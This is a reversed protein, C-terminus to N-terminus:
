RMLMPLFVTGVNVGENDLLTGASIRYIGQTAAPDSHTVEVYVTTGAAVMQTLLLYDPTASTSLNGRALETTGDAALLRVQPQMGLALNTVRLALKGASAVTIRFLDRDNAHDIQGAVDTGGTALTTATASTDGHDDAQTGTVQVTLEAFVEFSDTIPQAAPLQPTTGPLPPVLMGSDAIERATGASNTFRVRITHPGDQKTTLLAAYLGDDARTDPAIGDDRLTISQSVGDSATIEGEAVAGAVPQNGQLTAIVRIPEPYTIQGGDLATVNATLAPTNATLAAGSTAWVIQLASRATNNSVLDIRPAQGAQPAVSALESYYLRRPSNELVGNRPDLALPRVLTAWGSAGYVRQQATNRTNNLSTSFNLWSYNGGRAAWQSNMMSNQVPTDSECPLSPRNAQCADSGRYEDYLSYFYHGWEHALVYGGAEHDILFNVGSFSDCMEVRLGIIGYGSIHANPWCDAIWEINTHGTQGRNTYITVTRLKHVGNSSEFVGDAFARMIAEYAARQTGTPNSYLSISVDVLGQETSAGVFDQGPLINVVTVTRNTPTFSYGSKVPTVTYSGPVLGSLTYSGDSTTTTSKGGVSVTVGALAKSSSDTIRGSLAYTLLTATFDQGNLNSAVTASRTAPTFSYGSKTPTLTYSGLPVATLTYSGTSDTTASRTGDSLTVDSLGTGGNATIRGSISYTILTGTFSQGSLNGTVTLARTSPTFSYGSKTPTLTYIGLPVATLTYSGTSDATANRTGDSLTVDALPAGNDDLIRGSVTYTVLTATFDQGSLNSAPVMVTRSTPTFRYSSKTPTLRYAGAPLVLAYNGSADTTANYTSSGPPPYSQAVGATITVGAIPTGNLDAIRGSATYSLATATFDQGSLNGTLLTVTRTTPTFSYNSKTPTLTYVGAPLILAYNGDADTTTNYPSPGPGPYPQWLRAGIAVGAVPTGNGDLVRGSTTYTLVTATFDQGSFTGTTVTVDRTAPAFSCSVKTPTLTYSGAPVVLTYAGSANTIASRTGDSVTVGALPTGSNDTITGTITAPITGDLPFAWLGDSAGFFLTNNRYVKGSAPHDLVAITGASTGDTQWLQRSGGTGANFFLTSGAVFLGDPRSGTPYGVPYGSGAGSGPDIDKLLVTGADTGDSQWIEWGTVGDSAVFFVTNTLVTLAPNTSDFACAAPNINAKIPVTGLATGDSKWLGNCTTAFFANNVLTTYRPAVTNTVLITGATTGDSKWLGGNAYANIAFFLTNNLATLASPYANSKVLVTGATTGDSKWLGYNGDYASFFLTNGVVTLNSPSAYYGGLYIDKVLVTGATTGDSRWLEVGNTGDNATFFLTNNMVTLNSPASSTIGLAIDKVQVTGATTGDSKWLEVGRTGDNATFFLTGNVVTLNSPASWTAGPAIDKVLVTGTTTGDSQWLEVGNTGESATFFLANNVQVMAGVSTLNKVLYPQPGTVQAFTHSGKLSVGLLLLLPIVLLWRSRLLRLPHRPIFM